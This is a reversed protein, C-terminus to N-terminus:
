LNYLRKDRSTIVWRAYHWKPDLRSLSRPARPRTLAAFSSAAHAVQHPVLDFDRVRLSLAVQRRASSQRSSALDFDERVKVQYRLELEVARADVVHELDTDLVCVQFLKSPM